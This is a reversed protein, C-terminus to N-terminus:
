REISQEPHHQNLWIGQMRSPMGFKNIPIHADMSSAFRNIITAVKAEPTLSKLAEDKYHGQFYTDLMECCARDGFFSARDEKILLKASGKTLYQIALDCEDYTATGINLGVGVRGEYSAEDTKSRNNPRNGM